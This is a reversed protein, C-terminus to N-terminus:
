HTQVTWYSRSLGPFSVVISNGLGRQRSFPNRKVEKVSSHIDEDAAEELGFIMLNKSRDEVIDKVATKIKKM